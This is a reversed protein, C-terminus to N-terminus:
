KTINEFGLHEELTLNNNFIEAAVEKGVYRIHWPEYSYGTIDVKKKPYRIIFGYKHANENLWKGEATQGFDEELSYNANKSSVDMALGTQHESQGPRAVLKNAAKVGAKKVKNNFLLEQRAYTRYGSVACLDINEEEGAKFLEELAKAADKRLYKKQDKGEFSFKVNPIVLDKPQYNPALDRQKNVLALIDDPNKIINKGKNNSSKKEANRIETSGKEANEKVEVNIDKDAYVNDPKETNEEAKSKEEKDVIDEDALAHHIHTFSLDNFIVSKILPFLRDEIQTIVVVSIFLIIIGCFIKKHKKRKQKSNRGM